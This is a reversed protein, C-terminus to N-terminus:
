ERTFMSGKYEITRDVLLPHFQYLIDFGFPTEHIIELTYPGEKKFYSNVDNILLSRNQPISDALMVYSGPLMFPEVPAATPAGRYVRVYTESAPYLDDLVVTIPPIDTYRVTRDPGSISGTAVPWVQLRKSDLVASAVGYDALSSVTFTEEGEVQTLNTGSLNTMTYTVVTDGNATIYGERIMTPEIAGTSSLAHSGEPYGVVSHSFAVNLAADPIEEPPLGSTGDELGAVTVKVSFPQDVRTRKVSTYPDRTAIEIKATPLYSSVYQEDLLYQHASPSHISWLQFYSGKEGVGEPSLSVGTSAVSVDWEVETDAQTQRIFNVYDAATDAFLTPTLSLLLCFTTKM